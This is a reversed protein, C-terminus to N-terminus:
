DGLASTALDRRRMDALQHLRAVSLTSASQECQRLRDSGPGGRCYDSGSGGNLLDPGSNGWIADNGTLGFLVDRRLGGQLIDNAAGGTLQDRGKGGRLVDREPGAAILDGGLGGVMVDLGDGAHITDHGKGASISDNGSGAFILDNGGRTRIQDDGGKACIIDNASTGVLADARRTGEISCGRVVLRQIGQGSSSSFLYEGGHDASLLSGGISFFHGRAANIDAVAAADLPFRRVANADRGVTSVKFTGYRVGSGLDRFIAASTGVNHNLKRASTAVRFLAFTEIRTGADYFRRVKLTAARVRQKLSSLDFTFFNHHNGGSIGVFYNDNANENHVVPSWWGQNDSGTLFQSDSTDFGFRATATAATVDSSSAQTGESPSSHHSPWDPGGHTAAAGTSALSSFLVIAGLVGFRRNM